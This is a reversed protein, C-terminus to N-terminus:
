DIPTGDFSTVSHAEEATGWVAKDPRDFPFAAEVPVFLLFGADKRSVEATGTGASPFAAEVAPLPFVARDAAEAWLFFARGAAVAAPAASM